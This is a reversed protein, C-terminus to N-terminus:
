MRSHVQPRLTYCRYECAYSRAGSAVPKIEANEIKEISPSLMQADPGPDQLLLGKDAECQVQAQLIEWKYILDASCGRFDWVV